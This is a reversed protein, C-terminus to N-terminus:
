SSRQFLSTKARPAGLAPWNRAVSVAKCVSSPPMKGALTPAGAGTMTAAAVVAGAGVLVGCGDAVGTCVACTAGPALGMAAVGLDAALAAFGALAAALGTASAEASTRGARAVATVVAFGVALAAAGLGADVM